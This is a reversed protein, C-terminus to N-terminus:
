LLPLIAMVCQPINEKEEQRFVAVIKGTKRVATFPSSTCRQLTYYSTKYDANSYNYYM